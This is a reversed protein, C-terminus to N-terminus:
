KNGYPREKLDQEIQEKLWVRAEKKAEANSLPPGSSRFMDIQTERTGYQVTYNTAVPRLSRRMNQPWGLTVVIKGVEKRRYVVDFVKKDEYVRPSGIKIEKLQM